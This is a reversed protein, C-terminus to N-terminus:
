NHVFLVKDIKEIKLNPKHAVVDQIFIGDAAFDRSRWGVARALDTRFVGSGVDFRNMRPETILVYYTLGYADHSHVMDFLVIDPDNEEIVRLVTEVFVPVYYNDDNTFLVYPTTARELGIQRLSHGYDNYREETFLYDIRHPYRSAFEALISAIEDDPGDHIVLLRFNQSTQALFCHLLVQLSQPRRYAVCVITLAIESSDISDDDHQNTINECGKGNISGLNSEIQATRHLPIWPRPRVPLRGLKLFARLVCIPSEPSAPKITTDHSEKVSRTFFIADARQAHAIRAKPIRSPRLQERIHAM